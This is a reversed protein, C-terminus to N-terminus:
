HSYQSTPPSQGLDCQKFSHIVHYERLNMVNDSSYGFVIKQSNKGNYFSCYIPYIIFFLTGSSHSIGRTLNQLYQCCWPSHIHWEGLCLQQRGQTRSLHLLPAQLYYFIQVPKKGTLPRTRLLVEKKWATKLCPWSSSSSFCIIILNMHEDVTLFFLSM